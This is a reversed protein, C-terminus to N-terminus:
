VASDPVEKGFKILVLARMAAILPTPGEGDPGSIEIANVPSGADAEWMVKKGRSESDYGRWFGIGEREIIPGGQSWDESPHWENKFGNSAWEGTLSSPVDDRSAYGLARAVWFDLVAGELEATKM